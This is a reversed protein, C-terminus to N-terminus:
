PKKAEPVSGSKAKKKLRAACREFAQPYDKLQSFIKQDKGEFIRKLDVDEQLYKINYFFEGLQPIEEKLCHPTPATSQIATIFNILIERSSDVFDAIMSATIERQMGPVRDSLTFIEKGRKGTIELLKWSESYNDSSCVEKLSDSNLQAHPIQVMEGILRQNLDYVPGTDKKLHLRKEERGLCKLLDGEAALAQGLSLILSLIVLCKM